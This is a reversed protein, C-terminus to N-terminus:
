VVSKRDGVYLEIHDIGLAEPEAADNVSRDSTIQQQLTVSM